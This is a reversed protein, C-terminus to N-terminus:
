RSGPDCRRSPPAAAAARHALHTVLLDLDAKRFLRSAGAETFALEIEPTPASTFAVIELGPHRELLRRTLEAGDAGPMQFDVIVVEPCTEEVM